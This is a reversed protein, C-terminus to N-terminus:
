DIISRPDINKGDKILEFHLHDDMLMEIKATKGVTGIHDGKLVELGEKVMETTGLNALKSELGNGHDIVIVKGWLDDEYVSKILGKQPAIVIDNLNAKIDIGVHARWEELTESYILSDNVFPTIIEGEVPYVMDERTIQRPESEIFELVVEEDETEEETEEDVEDTEEEVEEAEEQDAEQDIEGEEEDSEGISAVEQGNNFMDRRIDGDTLDDVLIEEFESERDGLIDIDTKSGTGLDRTALYLTSVAVFCVGLFLLTLLGNAKLFLKLKDRM